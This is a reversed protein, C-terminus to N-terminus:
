WPLDGVQRQLTQNSICGHESVDAGIDGKVLELNPRAIWWHVVHASLFSLPAVWPNNGGCVALLGM